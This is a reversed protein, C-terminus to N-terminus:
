EGRLVPAMKSFLAECFVRAADKRTVRTFDRTFEQLREKKHKSNLLANACMCEHKTINARLIVDSIQSIAQDLEEAAGDALMAKWKSKDSVMVSREESPPLSLTPIVGAGTPVALGIWSDSSWVGGPRQLGM